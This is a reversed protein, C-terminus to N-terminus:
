TDASNLCGRSGPHAQALVSDVPSKALEKADESGPAIPAEGWRRAIEFYM